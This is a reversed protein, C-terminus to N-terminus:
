CYWLDICIMEVKSAIAYYHNDILQKTEIENGTILGEGTVKLGKSQLTAKVVERGKQTNAHPKIFVLASNMALAAPLVCLLLSAKM